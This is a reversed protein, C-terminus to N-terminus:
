KMKVFRITRTIDGNEAIRDFYVDLRYKDGEFEMILEDAPTYLFDYTHTKKYPSEGIIQLVTKQLTM